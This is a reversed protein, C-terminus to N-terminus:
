DAAVPLALARGTTVKKGVQEGIGLSRFFRQGHLWCGFRALSASPVRWSGKVLSNPTSNLDSSSPEHVKAAALERPIMEITGRPHMPPTM